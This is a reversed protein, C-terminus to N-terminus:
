IFCVETKSEGYIMGIIFCLQSGDQSHSADVFAVTNVDVNVNPSPYNSLTGLRKLLKLANVQSVLASVRCQPLKRQLHSSYFACQPSVATELWCISFNLSMFASRELSNIEEDIQRRRVRSIPYAELSQLKDDADISCSFDEYQEIRLGSFGFKGPGHSVTGLKFKEGFEVVFSRLMDDTVCALIDDM